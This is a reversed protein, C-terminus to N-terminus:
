FFTKMEVCENTSKIDDHSEYSFFIQNIEQYDKVEESKNKKM